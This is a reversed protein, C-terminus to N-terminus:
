ARTRTKVGGFETELREGDAMQRALWGAAADVRHASGASAPVATTVLSAGLLVATILKRM